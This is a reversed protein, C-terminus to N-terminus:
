RRAAAVGAVLGFDAKDRQRQEMRLQAIFNRLGTGLRIECFNAEATDEGIQALGVLRVRRELFPDGIPQGGLLLAADALERDSGQVVFDFIFGRFYELSRSM